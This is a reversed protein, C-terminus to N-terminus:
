ALGLPAGPWSAARISRQVRAEAIAIRMRALESAELQLRMAEKHQQEWIRFVQQPVM